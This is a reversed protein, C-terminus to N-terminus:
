QSECANTVSFNGVKWLVTKLSMKKGYYDIWQKWCCVYMILEIWVKWEYVCFLLRFCIFWSFFCMSSLDKMKCIDTVLTESCEHLVFVWIENQFCKVDLVIKVCAQVKTLSNQYEKLKMLIQVNWLLCKNISDCVLIIQFYQFTIFLKFVNQVSSHKMVPFFLRKLNKM